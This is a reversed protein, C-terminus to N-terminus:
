MFIYNSTLCVKWKLELEVTLKEADPSTLIRRNSINATTVTIQSMTAGHISELYSFDTEM